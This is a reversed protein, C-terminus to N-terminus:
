LAQLRRGTDAASGSVVRLGEVLDKMKARLEATDGKKLLRGIDKDLEVL